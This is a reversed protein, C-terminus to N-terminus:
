LQSTFLISGLSLSFILSSHIESLVLYEHSPNIFCLSSTGYILFFLLNCFDVHSSASKSKNFLILDISGLSIPPCMPSITFKSLAKPKLFNNPM